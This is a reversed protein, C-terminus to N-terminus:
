FTRRTANTTLSTPSTILHSEWDNEHLSQSCTTWVCTGRDGFLVHAYGSPTCPTGPGLRPLRLIKFNGPLCSILCYVINYYASLILKYQLVLLFRNAKAISFWRGWDYISAVGNFCYLKTCDLPRHHEAAQFTVAPRASLLSLLTQPYARTKWVISYRYAYEITNYLRMIYHLLLRDM